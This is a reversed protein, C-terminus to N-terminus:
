QRTGIALISKANFSYALSHCVCRHPSLPSRHKRRVYGDQYKTCQLPLLHKCTAHLAPRRSPTDQRDRNRTQASQCGPLQPGRSSPAPFPGHKKGRKMGVGWLRGTEEVRTSNGGIWVMGRCSRAGFDPFASILLMLGTM